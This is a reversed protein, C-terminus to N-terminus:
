RKRMWSRSLIKESARSAATEWMPIRTRLVGLGWLGVGEAFAEDPGEAALAKIEEEDHVLAVQTADEHLPDPVVILTAGVRAQPRADRIREPARGGGGSAVRAPYGLTVVDRGRRDEAAEVVLVTQFLDRGSPRPRFVVRRLERRRVADSDRVREGSAGRSLRRM